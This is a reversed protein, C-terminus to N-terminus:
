WKKGNLGVFGLVMMGFLIGTMGPCALEAATTKVVQVVEKPVGVTFTGLTDVNAWVQKAATNIGYDGLTATAPQNGSDATGIVSLSGNANVRMLRLDQEATRGLSVNDYNIALKYVGDAPIGAGAITISGGPALWVAKAAGTSQPPHYTLTFTIDQGDDRVQIDVALAQGSSNTISSLIQQSESLNLGIHVGEPFQALVFKIKRGTAQTLTLTEQHTTEDTVVNLATGATVGEITASLTPQEASGITLVATDADNMKLTVPLNPDFGGVNADIVNNRIEAQGSSNTNAKAEITLIGKQFIFAYNHDPGGAPIIDYSGAPSTPTAPSTATPLVDLNSESQALVFGSYTVTWAPNAQGYDRTKDEATVTLVKKDVTLTQPVDTAPNYTGNGAQSATITTTGAGIITVTTGVVTAVSPDGATFTVPLGSTATATLTFPSEGYTKAALTGFTITQDEKNTTLSVPNDTGATTIYNEQGGLGIYECAMVRYTQGTSLGTVSVSTGTGNYVCYWGTSGIQQGTGFAANATYTTKDVPVAAGTPSQKVFVARRVGSGNTWQLNLQTCTTTAAIVNSAATDPEPTMIFARYQGSSNEGDGAIQGSDNIALADFLVWGSGTPLLTNLDILTGRSYLFAQYISDGTLTSSGVVQGATNIGMAYSITGGFNGLDQMGVGPTYLFPHMEAYGSTYFYGAVQGSANLIFGECCPGGLNGLDLMGIGPTYLFANTSANGTTDFGGALQGGANIKYAYSNTGGLTGLDQMGGGSTYLFAHKASNGSIQSFGVIKNDTNIGFASSDTGGLTGLDQMGIGPTYLFAHTASNGTIKSNGVIQGNDNIDSAQSDSGGLTGLDQMGIGPTYLFAHKVSNGTISASGVVQGNANIAGPMVSYVCTGGLSGLDTIIYEGAQVPIALLGSLTLMPVLKAWALRKNTLM